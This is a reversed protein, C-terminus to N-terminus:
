QSRQQPFFQFVYDDAAPKEALWEAPVFGRAWQFGHSNSWDAYTTKSKPGIRNNPNSFVFRIDLRPHCAKIFLHKQRDATIFRGKTEIIIGNPLVFDPTYRHSREPKTYPITFPEYSARGQLQAAVVEELGSRYGAKLARARVKSPASM